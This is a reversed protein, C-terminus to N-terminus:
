FIQKQDALTQAKSVQVTVSETGTVTGNNLKTM